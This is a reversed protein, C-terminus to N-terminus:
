RDADLAEAESRHGSGKSPQGPHAAATRDCAQSPTSDGRGAHDILADLIADAQDIYPQVDTKESYDSIDLPRTSLRVLACPLPYRFKDWSFPLRVGPYSARMLYLPVGAKRALVVAGPKVKHRPGRSGDVTIVVSQRQRRMLTQLTQLAEKGGKKPSGHVVTYGMAQAAGGLAWGWHNVSTLFAPKSPRFFELIPLMEDHYVAIVCPQHLEFDASFRLTRRCQFALSVLRAGAARLMLRSLRTETLRSGKRQRSM